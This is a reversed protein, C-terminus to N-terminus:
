YARRPKRSWFLLTDVPVVVFGAVAWALCAAGVVGLIALGRLAQLPTERSDTVRGGAVRLGDM